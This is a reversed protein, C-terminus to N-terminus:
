QLVIVVNCVRLVDLEVVIKYTLVVYCVAFCVVIFDVVLTVVLM